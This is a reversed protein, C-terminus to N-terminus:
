RREVQFRRLAVNELVFKTKGLDKIYRSIFELRYQGPGPAKLVGRFKFQSYPYRSDIPEVSEGLQTLRLIVESIKAQAGPAPGSVSYPIETSRYVFSPGGPADIYVRDYQFDNPAVIIDQAYKKAATHIEVTYLGPAPASKLTLKSECTIDDPWNRCPKSKQDIDILTQNLTAYVLRIREIPEKPQPYRVYWNTDSKMMVSDFRLGVEAWEVVDGINGQPQEHAYETARAIALEEKCTKLLTLIKQDANRKNGSEALKQIERLDERCPIQIDKAFASPTFLLLLAIVKQM